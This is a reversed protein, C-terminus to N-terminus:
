VYVFENILRLEEIKKTILDLRKLDIFSPILCDSNVHFNKIEEAENFPLISVKSYLNIRKNFEIIAENSLNDLINSNLIHSILKSCYM